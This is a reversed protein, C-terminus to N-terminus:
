NYENERKVQILEMTFEKQKKKNSNSIIMKAQLHELNIYEEFNLAEDSIEYTMKKHKNKSLLCLEVKVLSRYNQFNNM